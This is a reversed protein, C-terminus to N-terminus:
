DTGGDAAPTSGEDTNFCKALHAETPPKTLLSVVVTVIISIPLGYVLPDVWKWPAGVLCKTGSVLECLGLLASEKEHLFLFGFVMVLFGILMGSVAAAKGM